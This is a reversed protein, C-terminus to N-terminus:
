YLQDFLSLETKFIVLISIGLAIIQGILSAFILNSKSVKYFIIEILSGIAVLILM